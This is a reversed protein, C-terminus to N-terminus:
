RENFQDICYNRFDKCISISISIHNIIHALQCLQIFCDALTTTKSELVSVANKIPKLITIMQHVDDFFGRTTIINICANNLVGPKNDL